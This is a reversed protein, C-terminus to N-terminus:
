VDLPVAHPSGLFEFQPTVRLSVTVCIGGFLPNFTLTKVNERLLLYFFLGASHTSPIACSTKGTERVM